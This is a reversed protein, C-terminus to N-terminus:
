IPKVSKRLILEPEYTISEVKQNNILQLIMKGADRGMQSKPHSLTTLTPTIYSSMKFDDFGIISIDEPIRWG